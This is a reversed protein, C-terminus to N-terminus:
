SKNEEKPAESPYLYVMSNYKGVIKIIGQEDFEKLYRRVTSSSLGTMKCLENILEVLKMTRIGSQKLNNIAIIIKQRNAVDKPLRFKVIIYTDEERKSKKLWGKKVLYEIYKRVGDIYYKKDFNDIVKILYNILQDFSFKNEGYEYEMSLFANIHLRLNKDIKRFTKRRKFIDESLIDPKIIVEYNSFSRIKERKIITIAGDTQKGILDLVRYIGMYAPGPLDRSSYYGFLYAIHKAVEGFPLYIDRKGDKNLQLYLRRLIYIIAMKKTKVPCLSPLTDVDINIRYYKVLKREISNGDSEVVMKKSIAIFRNYLLTIIVYYAIKKTDEMSDGYKKSIYDIIEEKTVYGGESSRKKIYDYVDSCIYQFLDMSIGINCAM